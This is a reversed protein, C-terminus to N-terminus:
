MLKGLAVTPQLYADLQLQIAQSLELLMDSAHQKSNHQVAQAASRVGWIGLGVLLGLLALPVLLVWPAAKVM